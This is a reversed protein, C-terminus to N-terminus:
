VGNKLPCTIVVDMGQGPTSEIQITGGFAGVRNQINTLGIGYGQPSSKTDFGSGNDSYHVVVFDGSPFISTHIESANAHKMTNQILETVCRYLSLELKEPFHELETHQFDVNIRGGKRLPVLFNELAAVIGHRELIHPSINHSIRSVDAMLDSLISHLKAQIQSKQSNDADVYAQFHLNMSSIAPGLGDHIDAAIRKREQEETEVIADFIKRQALLKEQTEAQLASIYTKLIFYILLGTLIFHLIRVAVCAFQCNEFKYDLPICTTARLMMLVGVVVVMVLSLGFLYLAGRGKSVVISYIIALLYWLSAMDILGLILCFCGASFILSIFIWAKIKISLSHRVLAIMIVFAGLVLPVLRPLLYESDRLAFFIIANLPISALATYVIGANTIRNLISPNKAM